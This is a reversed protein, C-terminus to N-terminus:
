EYNGQIMLRYEPSTAFRSRLQSAYSEAEERNGLRRETRLGLWASAATPQMQQHLKVLYRHAAENVGQSYAIDALQFIAQVNKPDMEVARQFAREAANTDKMRRYCLGSNTLARGPTQYYPNRLAVNLHELGEKEQGAACLFWGYSNNIDPDLPARRLAEEFNARASNPDDLYMYVLGKLHFAPPYQPDLQLAEQGEDLAVGYRGASFYALGLDVHVKAKAEADTAPPRDSYPRVAPAGSSAAGPAGPGTTACAAISAAGALLLCRCLILRM